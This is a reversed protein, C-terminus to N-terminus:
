RDDEQRPQLTYFRDIWELIRIVRSEYSLHIKREKVCKPCYLASGVASWSHAINTVANRNLSLSVYRRKGCGSCQITPAMM